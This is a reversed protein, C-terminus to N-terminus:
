SQISDVLAKPLGVQILEYFPKVKVIDYKAGMEVLRRDFKHLKRQGEDDNGVQLFTISIEKPDRMLQTAQVLLECLKEDDQPKGDTIVAIALPRARGNARRNFYDQLQEALPRALRTGVYIGERNYVYPLRSMTVNQFVDYKGSFLVVTMKWNPLSETQRTLSMAQELCWDWKSTKRWGSNGFVHEDEAMSSSRDQMVVVDHLKLVTLEKNSLDGPLRTTQIGQKLPPTQGFKPLQRNLQPSNVNGRFLSQDAGSQLANNGARGDLRNTGARGDFRNSDTRGSQANLEYDDKDVLGETNTYDIQGTLPKLRMSSQPVSGYQEQARKLRHNEAEANTTSLVTAAAVLIMGYKMQV